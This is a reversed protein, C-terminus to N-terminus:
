FGELRLLKKRLKESIPVRDYYKPTKNIKEIFKEYLSKKM